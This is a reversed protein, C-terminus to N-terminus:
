VKAHNYGKEGVCSRLGPWDFEGSSCIKLTIPDGGTPICTQKNRQIAPGSHLANALSLVPAKETPKEFGGAQRTDFGM